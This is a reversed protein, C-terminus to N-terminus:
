YNYRSVCVISERQLKQEGDDCHPRPADDDDGDADDGWHRQPDTILCSPGSESDQDGKGQDDDDVEDDFDGKGEDNSMIM